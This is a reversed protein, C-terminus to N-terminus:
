HPYDNGFPDRSTTFHVYSIAGLPDRKLFFFGLLKLFVLSRLSSM